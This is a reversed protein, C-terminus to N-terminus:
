PINAVPTNPPSTLLVLVVAAAAVMAICPWIVVESLPLLVSYSM